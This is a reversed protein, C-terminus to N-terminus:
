RFVVKAMMGKDEHNLLHCHFLSTGRIIPDTFDMVLDVSGMPSVNVTDLWEQQRLREGNSAYVLFHVQHIHFPHVENTRNTIRWHEYSGIPVTLMPPSDMAFKKGNIYFGDKDETFVATFQPQAQEVSHMTALPVQQYVPAGSDKVITRLVRSSHKPVLDALVMAANPDGDSGTDFCRTHLTAQKGAPPGTVIAEMRGAPALLVHPLRRSRINPEHFAFPMGDLGVVDFSSGHIEIDAYLDPSANVIRWFQHEGPSIEIQPRVIGNVTFVREPQETSSGCGQTQLSVRHMLALRQAGQEELEADRLVMIREQMHRLEPIYRDIGEVVIAGSMGDLDQRYSEMHQHTHYWYLGPPQNRPVSVTYRLTEGPAASMTLVDDQPSEPSVHLGHFHLNSRNTCPMMVCREKSVTSLDNVYEVRIDQGPRVRITPPVDSGNYRFHSKGSTSDTVASLTFPGNVQPLEPLTVAQAAFSPPGAVFSGLIVLAIFSRQLGLMKAEKKREV